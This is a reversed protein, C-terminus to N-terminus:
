STMMYRHIEVERKEEHAGVLLRVCYDRVRPNERVRFVSKRFSRNETGWAGLVCM